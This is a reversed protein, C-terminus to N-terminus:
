KTNMNLNSFDEFKYPIKLQIKYLKWHKIKFNDVQFYIPISLLFKNVKFETNCTAQENRDLFM